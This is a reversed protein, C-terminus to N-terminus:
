KKSRYKDHLGIGNQIMPIAKELRKLRTEERKAGGIYAAFEKRKGPTLEKFEFALEVDEELKKALEIPMQVQKTAPLIEKGEDHNKIAEIIYARLEHDPLDDKSQFRWQRLGKTTGEQANILRKNPDSLYVGQTFWIAGFDSFGAIGIINKNNLVYYPIGWKLKEEFRFELLISRIFNLEDKWKSEELYQDISTPMKM